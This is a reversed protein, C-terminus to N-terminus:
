VKGVAIIYLAAEEEGDVGLLDNLDDDLFAGVACAGLGMSTAALYLNQGIHGAELQVYRYTRQRYKWRTRQFIASLVFCVQAQALMEQGIGAVTIETRLDGLRLQELAHNAVNYHYLGPEMEAVNHVVAYTEIPYLAGASPAARFGRAPDTIGSAAYLLGSIETLSLSDGAYNRRSRRRAIAEEVSLGQYGPPAPLYIQKPHPYTKYRAPQSGWSFLTGLSRAYGPKSWQHYFAGVDGEPLNAMGEGSFDPILQSEPLLRGLVFGGVATLISALFWRRSTTASAPKPQASLTPGRESRFRRKVYATVRPWNFILHVGGLVVWAYGVYNHWLFRPFGFLDMVLGTIAVYLGTLM